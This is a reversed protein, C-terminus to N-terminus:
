AVFSNKYPFDEKSPYIISVWQVLNFTADRLKLDKWRAYDKYNRDEEFKPAELAEL